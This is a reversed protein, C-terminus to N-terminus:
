AAANGAGISRAIADLENSAATDAYVGRLEDDLIDAAMRLMRIVHPRDNPSTVKIWRVLENAAVGALDRLPKASPEPRAREPARDARRELTSVQAERTPERAAQLLASQNDDLGLDAAKAKVEPPLSAITQSREIERRSINLERAVLRDGSEPRGGQPKPAVQASVVAVDATAQREKTLKAYEAIQESRQLASLENRHLNESIAWLRAEIDDFDVVRVPIQDKGIVRMAEVRHRGSVLMYRSGREIVTPPYQLGLLRISKVLAGVKKAHTPRANKPFDLEELRVMVAKSQARTRPATTIM